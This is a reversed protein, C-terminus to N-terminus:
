FNFEIGGDSIIRVKKINICDEKTIKGRGSINFEFELHRAQMMKELNEKGEIEISLKGLDKNWVDNLRILERNSEDLIIASIKLELNSDLNIEVSESQIALNESAYKIFDDYLDEGFVDEAIDKITLNIAEFEFPLKFTYDGKIEPEYNKYLIVPSNLNIDIQYNLSGPVKGVFFDDLNFEKWETNPINTIEEPSLIYSTYKEIPGYGSLPKGVGPIELDSVTATIGPKAESKLTLDILFGNEAVVNHAVTALLSPNKFQLVDNEFSNTFDVSATITETGQAQCEVNQINVKNQWPTQKTSLEIILEPASVFVNMASTINLDASYTLETDNQTYDFTKINVVAEQVYHYEDEWMEFKSIPIKLDITRNPHGEIIFTPPFEIHLNLKNEGRTGFDIGIDSLRILLDLPFSVFNVKELEIEYENSHNININGINYEASTRSVIPYNMPPLSGTTIGEIKANSKFTNFYPVNFDASFGIEPFHDSYQLYLIGSQPDPIVEGEGEYNKELLDWLSITEIKGIPIDIGDPSFVGSKDLKDDDFDYDDNVCSSLIVVLSFLLAKSILNNKKINKMIKISLTLRRCEKANSLKIQPM